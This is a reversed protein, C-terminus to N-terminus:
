KIVNNQYIRKLENDIWDRVEKRFGFKIQPITERYIVGWIQRNYIKLNGHKKMDLFRIYVPYPIGASVSEGLRQATSPPHRLANLLAGSRGRGKASQSYIRRQAIQLQASYIQRIGKQLTEYIFNGLDEM